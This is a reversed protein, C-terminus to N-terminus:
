AGEKVLWGETGFLAEVDEKFRRLSFGHIDLKEWLDISLYFLMAMMKLVDLRTSSKVHEYSLNLSAELRRSASDFKLTDEHLPSEPKVAVFTFYVSSLGDGYDTLIISSNLVNAISNLDLKDSVEHWTQKTLIFAKKDM